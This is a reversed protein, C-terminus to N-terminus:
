EKLPVPTLLRQRIEARRLDVDTPVGLALAIVEQIRGTTFWSSGEWWDCRLLVAELALSMKDRGYEAEHNHLHDHLRTSLASM